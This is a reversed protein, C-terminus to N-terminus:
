AIKAVHIYLDLSPKKVKFIMISDANINGYNILQEDSVNVWWNGRLKEQLNNSINNRREENSNSNDRNIEDICVNKVQNFLNIDQIIKIDTFKAENEKKSVWDPLDILNENIIGSNFVLESYENKQVEKFSLIQNEENDSNLLNLSEELYSLTVKYEKDDIKEINKVGFCSFPFFIIEDDSEFYSIDKNIIANNKVYRYNSPKDLYLYIMVDNFRSFNNNKFNKFSSEEKYFSFFSAGYLIAKPINNDTQHENFKNYIEKWKNGKMIIGKYLVSFQSEIFGRNVSDYLTQIFPLYEKYKKELLDQNITENFKTQSSYARLWFKILVKQPINDVDVIQSLLFKLPENEINDKFIKKNFEAIKENSSKKLYNIYNVPLILENKDSIFQFTLEENKYREDKKKNFEANNENLNKEIFKKLDSEEEVAGGINYFPDNIPEKNNHNKFSEVSGTFVIIKPVIYIEKLCNKLEKCFESFLWGSLIIITKRFKIKKLYNIGEQVNTKCELDIGKYSKITKQYRKNEDTTNVNKDIWLILTDNISGM